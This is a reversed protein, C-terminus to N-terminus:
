RVATQAPSKVAMRTASGGGPTASEPVVTIDVNFGTNGLGIGIELGMDLAQLEDLAGRLRQRAAPKMRMPLRQMIVQAAAAAHRARFRLAVLYHPSSAKPGAGAHSSPLKADGFLVALGNKRLAVRVPQGRTWQDPLAVPPGDLQPAQKLDLGGMFQVTRWLAMPHDSAIMIIGDGKIPWTSDSAPQLRFLAAAAGKVDALLATAIGFQLPNPWPLRQAAILAPCRYPTGTFQTEFSGMVSTLSSFDIGLGFSLLSQPSSAVAPEDGQLPELHALMGQDATEIILRGTLRGTSKEFGTVGLITRPWTDAIAKADDRCDPTHLASLLPDTIGFVATLANILKSFHEDSAGSLEALLRQHDIFGATGSLLGHTWALDDLESPAFSNAPMQVGLAADLARQSVGQVHLTVMGFGDGAAFILELPSHRGRTSFAYRRLKLSGRSESQGRIGAAQEATNLTKWLTEPDTLQWRLVPAGGAMYVAMVGMPPFGYRSFPWEGKARGVTRQQLLGALVGMAPGEEATVRRPDLQAAASPYPPLLRDWEALFRQAPLPRTLGLLFASDSPVYRLLREGPSLAIPQYAYWGGAAIAAISSLLLVVFARM